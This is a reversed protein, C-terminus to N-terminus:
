WIRLSQCWLDIMLLDNLLGTTYKRGQDSCPPASGAPTLLHGSDTLRIRMDWFQTTWDAVGRNFIEPSNRATWTRGEGLRRNDGEIIAGAGASL